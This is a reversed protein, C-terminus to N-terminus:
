DAIKLMVKGDVPGQEYLAFAKAADCLDFRHAIFREDAILQGTKLFHATMTWDRGPFPAEYSMRAGTLTFEKKSLLEFQAASFIVENGQTGIICAKGKNEVLDFCLKMTTASGATEYVYAFGRGNTEQMAKQMFDPQATNIIEDAGLEKALQLKHDNLDFAVVKQAGLLKAWQVAFLGITGCGLIAVTDGAAFDLRRIGHLAVSAPEILAGVEFPVSADIKIINKEPVSVYEALTGNVWIGLIAYEKCLGFDGKQCDKCKMCSLLPAATVREGVLVTTVETGIEEVVGAFEHGLILPFFHATGKNVRPVDSGCIGCAHIRILVENEKIRPKPYEEYRLDKKGHLVAAKM